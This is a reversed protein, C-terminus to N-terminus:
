LHESAQRCQEQCWAKTQSWRGTAAEGFWVFRGWGVGATLGWLCRTPAFLSEIVAGASPNAHLKVNAQFCWFCFNAEDGLRQATKMGKKHGSKGRSHLARGLLYLSTLALSQALKCIEYFIWANMHKGGLFQTHTHCLGPSSELFSAERGSVRITQPRPSSVVQRWAEIGGESVQLVSRHSKQLETYGPLVWALHELLFSSPPFSVWSPWNTLPTRRAQQFTWEKVGQGHGVKAHPDGYGLSGPGPQTKVQSWASVRAPAPPSTDPTPHMDVRGGAPSQPERKLGEALKNFRNWMQNTSGKEAKSERIMKEKTETHERERVRERETELKPYPHSSQSLQCLFLIRWYKIKISIM